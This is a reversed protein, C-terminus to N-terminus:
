KSIYKSLEKTLIKDLRAVEKKYEPKEALNVDHVNGGSFDYLEVAIVEHPSEYKQWRIYRYKDTRMSYGMLEMKRYDEGPKLARPYQSIAVKNVKKDPNKLISLLSKGQLHNPKQLNALDCLTPYIDVFEALSKTKIGGKMWPAYIFLSARTDLEVNTHKCWEGYEGLKYGHDGWLVIITNDLLDNEQLADLLKGLQEDVFSTAAYYGRILNLSTKDDIDGEPPIDYYYRLEKSNYMSFAPMGEPQTREPIRIDIPNYLNWYKRPLVFPLHPKLFGVALFFTSDKLAQLREIAIKRIIVDSMNDEPADSCYYPLEFGKVKPADGQLGTTDGMSIPTLTSKIKNLKWNWSPISWSLSDDQNGHGTHYIKGVAETRYGNNKFYEPLTVVNPVTTRFFTELNYIGIADPRLGTLLSNRSPACVSQQCYAREFVVGMEALRDFNPSHIYSAGYCNLEPRLDDIAIFLVNPKQKNQASILSTTFILLISLLLSKKMNM